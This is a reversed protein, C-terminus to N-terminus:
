NRPAAALRQKEKAVDTAAIPLGALVGNKRRAAEILRVHPFDRFLAHYRPDARAEPTFSNRGDTLMAGVMDAQSHGATWRAVRLADDLRGCRSLVAAYDYGWAPDPAPKMVCVQGTILARAVRAIEDVPEAPNHAKLREVIVPLDRDLDPVTGIDILTTAWLFDFRECDRNCALAARRVSGYDGAVGQALARTFLQIQNYPDSQIARDIHPLAEQTRGSMMLLSAYVYHAPGYDPARDLIERSQALGKDVDGTFNAHTNARAVLALINAPDLALARQTANRVGDEIEKQSMAVQPPSSLSLIYALGAHADAFGPELNTALQFQRIADKRAENDARLSIREIGKLFADYARPDLKGRDVIRGGGVGLRAQMAASVDKGIEFELRDLDTELGNYTQAWLQEGSDTDVLRVAVRLKNGSPTIEGEILHSANLKSGVQNATLDEESVARASSTAVISIGDLRALGNSLAGALGSSIYALDNGGSVEFPMVALSIAQHPQGLASRWDIKGFWGLAGIALLVAALAGLLIRPKTWTTTAPKAAMSPHDADVGLAASLERPRAGGRAAFAKLDLTQFQRFGLPASTGDISGAIMRKTDAAESAEDRVWRSGVSNKSWLVLVHRAAGLQEEIDRSFESGGKIHRDWWVALGARELADAIRQASARDPSAYSLFVDAV